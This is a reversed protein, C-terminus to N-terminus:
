PFPFKGSDYLANLFARASSESWGEEVLGELLYDPDYNIDKLMKKVEKTFNPPKFRIRRMYTEAQDETIISNYEKQTVKRGLIKELKQSAAKKNPHLYLNLFGEFKGRVFEPWLYYPM